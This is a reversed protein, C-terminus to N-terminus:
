KRGWVLGVRGLIKPHRLPLPLPLLARLPQYDINALPLTRLYATFDAPPGYHEPEAFYDIFAFCGGPQIVRLAEQLVLRKNPVSRVEHFTLNSVAGTFTAAPFALQAADGRQFTVRDAVGLAQANQACVSQSYEWAPGWSDVGTVTAAPNAAALRVTLVGNGSGIDLLPGQAPGLHEILLTYLRDQLQGGRQSFMLFAYLPFLFSLLAIVFLATLILQYILGFPLLALLGLALTLGGLLYLLRRRIWNGYHLTPSM